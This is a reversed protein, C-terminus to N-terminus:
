DVCGMRPAVDILRKWENSIFIEIWAGWALHSMKTLTFVMSIVFKLGRVGHSTRCVQASREHKATYIEIWAGWALHSGIVYQNCKMLAIEIWAGWALHSKCYGQVIEGLKEMEIWAGWALHSLCTLSLLSKRTFKLGRM